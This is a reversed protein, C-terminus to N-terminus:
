LTAENGPWEWLPRPILSAIPYLVPLLKNIISLSQFQNYSLAKEVERSISVDVIVALAIYSVNM